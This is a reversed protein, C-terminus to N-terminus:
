ASDGVAALEPRPPQAQPLRRSSAAPRWCTSRSAGPFVPRQEPKGPNAACSCRPSIHGLGCLRSSRLAARAGFSQLLGCELVPHNVIVNRLPERLPPLKLENMVARTHHAARPSGGLARCESSSATGPRVMLARASCGGLARAKTSPCPLPRFVIPWTQQLAGARSANCCIPAVSTPLLPGLM